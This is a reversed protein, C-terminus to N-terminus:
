ELGCLYEFHRSGELLSAPNHEKDNKRGRLEVGERQKVMSDNCQYYDEESVVRLLEDWFGNEISLMRLKIGLYKWDSNPYRQQKWMHNFVQKWMRSLVQLQINEMSGGFQNPHEVFHKTLAIARVAMDNVLTRSGMSSVDIFLQRQANPVTPHRFIYDIKDKLPKSARYPLDLERNFPLLHSMHEIEIIESPTM